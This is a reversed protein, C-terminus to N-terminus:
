MRIGSPRVECRGVPNKKVASTGSSWAREAASPRADASPWEPRLLVADRWLRPTKSQARQDRRARPPDCIPRAAQAGPQPDVGRDCVSGRRFRGRGRVSRAARLRLLGGGLPADAHLGHDDVRDPAGLAARARRLQDRRRRWHRRGPLAALAAALTEPPLITDADVFVLVDGTAERAGANRVASIQRAAVRVVRAGHQTAIEPTRDTSADDVVILEYDARVAAAAAHISALTRALLAEENHAPVVFSIM